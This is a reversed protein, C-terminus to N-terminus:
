VTELTPMVGVSEDTKDARLLVASVLRTGSLRILEAVGHIKDWSSRGATVV